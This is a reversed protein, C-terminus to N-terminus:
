WRRPSLIFYDKNYNKNNEKLKKVIYDQGNLVAVLVVIDEKPLVKDPFYTRYTLFDENNYTDIFGSLAIEPFFVDLMEKVIVAFYGKGWIYFHAKRKNAEELRDKVHYLYWLKLAIYRPKTFYEYKQYYLQILREFIKRVEEIGVIDDRIRNEIVYQYYDLLQPVIAQHSHNKTFTDYANQIISIHNREKRDAEFELVKKCIACETFNETLYGNFHDKIEEPVGAIPTSIIVVGYAMAESIVNPFSERTSGCILADAQLYEKEMDNCFGKIVIHDALENKRIYQKCKDAYSGSDNGFIYLEGQIGAELAQQFAKIVGLQNKEEYLSGACIYRTGAKQEQIEKRCKKVNVATRICISDTNLYYKWQEAWYWSDCIHYSPFIDIYKVTFFDSCLPYINMIHPINLERSILEVMPNLQVSHLIDPKEKKVIEKMKNYNQDLCIIDIDEPQSSIQYTASLLNIEYDSAMIIFKEEIANGLYDSMFVTIKNGANKMLIAQQLLANSAGGFIQGYDLFYVINYM